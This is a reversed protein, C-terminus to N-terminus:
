VHPDSGQEDLAHLDRSSICIKEFTLAESRGAGGAGSELTGDLGGM